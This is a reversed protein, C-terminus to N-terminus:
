EIMKMKSSLGEIMAKTDSPLMDFERKSEARARYGRKFNSAIVTNVQETPMLAWDRLTSPSGVGAQVEPPLKDFERQSHWGAHRTAEVVLNWAEDEDLIKPKTLDYIKNKVYGINPAFERKEGYIISKVVSIVVRAQEDKLAETWLDLYLNSQEADWGKYTAPYNVKLVKLLNRVEERTM